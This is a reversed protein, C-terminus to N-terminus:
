RLSTGVRRTSGRIAMGSATPGLGSTPLGSPTRQAKRYRRNLESFWTFLTIFPSPHTSRLFVAGYPLSFPRLLSLRRRRPSSTLILLSTLRRPHMQTKLHSPFYYTLLYLLNCQM